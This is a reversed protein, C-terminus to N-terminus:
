SRLVRGAPRGPGHQVVVDSLPKDLGRVYAIGPRFWMGNGFKFHGRPGIAITVTDMNASPINPATGMALADAHTLWRQYRLEGGVSLMPLIFYGAHIGVTSNTRTSDTASPPATRRPRPVAAAATAELQVTLKHDVYAVGGGVIATFYNVAFM